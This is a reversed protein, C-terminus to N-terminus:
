LRYRTAWQYRGTWWQGVSMQLERDNHAISRILGCCLIVGEAELKPAKGTQRVWLIRLTCFLRRILSFCLTKQAAPVPIKCVIARTNVPSEHEPSMVMVEWRSFTFYLMGLRDALSAGLLGGIQWAGTM